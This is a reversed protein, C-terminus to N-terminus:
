GIKEIINRTLGVLIDIVFYVVKKVIKWTIYAILANKIPSPIVNNLLGIWPQIYTQLLQAFDDIADVILDTSDTVVSVLAAIEPINTMLGLLTLTVTVYIGLKVILEIM